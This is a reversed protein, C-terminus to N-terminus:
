LKKMEEWIDKQKREVLPLLALRVDWDTIGPNDVAIEKMTGTARRITIRDVLRVESANGSISQLAKEAKGLEDAACDLKDFERLRVRCAEAENRDMM